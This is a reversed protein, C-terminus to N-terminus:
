KLEETLESQSKGCIWCKGGRIIHPPCKQEFLLSEYILFTKKCDICNYWHHQYRINSSQEHKDLLLGCKPCKFETDKM